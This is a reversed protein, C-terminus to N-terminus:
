GVFMRGGAAALAPDTEASAVTHKKGMLVRLDRSRGVRDDRAKVCLSAGHIIGHIDSTTEREPGGGATQPPQCVVMGVSAAEALCTGCDRMRSIAFAAM